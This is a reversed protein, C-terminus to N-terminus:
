VIGFNRSDHMVSTVFVLDISSDIYFFIGFPFKEINAKRNQAFRIAYSTPNIAIKLLTNKIDENFRNGLGVQQMDYWDKAVKIDNKAAILLVLKYKKM